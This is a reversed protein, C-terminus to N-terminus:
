GGIKELWRLRASPDLGSPKGTGTVSGRPRKVSGATPIVSGRTRIPEPATPAGRTRLWHFSHVRLEEPQDYDQHIKRLVVAAEPGMVKAYRDLAAARLELPHDKNRVKELLEGAGGADMTLIKGIEEYVSSTM